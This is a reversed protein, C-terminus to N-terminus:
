KSPKSRVEPAVFVLAGRTHLGLPGGAASAGLAAIRGARALLSEVRKARDPQNPTGKQLRRAFERGAAIMKPFNLIFVENTERHLFPQLRAYLAGATFTKQRGDVRDVARKITDSGLGVLVFNDTRTYSISYQPARPLVFWKIRKGQHPLSQFVASATTQQKGAALQREFFEEFGAIVKDMRQGDRVQIGTVLDLIPLTLLPDFGIQELCIFAEPGIAPALDDKLTFGMQERLNEEELRMRQEPTQGPQIVARISALVMARVSEYLAPGDLTNRASFVLPASSIYDLARLQSPPYHQYIAALRDKTADAFPLFSEFRIANSEIRFDAALTIEERPGRVLGSWPLVPLGGLRISPAIQESSLYLFGHPEPDSLGGVAGRFRGHAALGESKQGQDIIARIANPHNGMAFYNPGLQAMAFGAAAQSSVIEVNKYRDRVVPPRAAAMGTAPGAGSGMQKEICDVLQRFRPADSVRFVCVSPPKGQSEPPPLLVFDFGAIMASLTAANLPFGVEAEMQRKQELFQRYAPLGAINPNDLLAVVDQYIPTAVFAKWAAPLDPVSFVMWANAPITRPESVLRGPAASAVFTALIFLVVLGQRRGQKMMDVIRAVTGIRGGPGVYFSRSVVAITQRLCLSGLWGSAQSEGM